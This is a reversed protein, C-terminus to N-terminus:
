ARGGPLTPPDLPTGTAGAKGWPPSSLRPRGARAGGRVDPPDLPPGTTGAGWRPPWAAAQLPTKVKGVVEDGRSEVGDAPRSM